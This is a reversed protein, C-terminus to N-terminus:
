VCCFQFAIAPRAKRIELRLIRLLALFIITFSGVFGAEDAANPSFGFTDISSPSQL